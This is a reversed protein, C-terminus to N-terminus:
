RPVMPNDTFEHAGDAAVRIYGAAFLEVIVADFAAHNIGFRECAWDATFGPEGPMALVRLLLGHAELSLGFDLLCATSITTCRRRPSANMMLQPQPSKRRTSRM